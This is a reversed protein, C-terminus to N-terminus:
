RHDGKLRSTKKIDKTTTFHEAFDIQKLASQAVLEGTIYRNVQEKSAL